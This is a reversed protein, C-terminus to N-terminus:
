IIFQVEAILLLAFLYVGPEFDRFFSVMSSCVDLEKVIVEGQEDAM